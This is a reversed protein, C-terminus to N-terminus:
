TSKGKKLAIAFEIVLTAYEPQLRPLFHLFTGHARLFYMSEASIFAIKGNSLKLEDPTCLERANM